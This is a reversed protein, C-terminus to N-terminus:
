FEQAFLVHNIHLTFQQVKQIALYDRFGADNEILLNTYESFLVRVEESRDYAPVIEIGETMSNMQM